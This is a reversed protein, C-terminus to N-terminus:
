PHHVAVRLLANQLPDDGLPQRRGVQRVHFRRVRKEPAKDGGAIGGDAQFLLRRHQAHEGALRQQHHVAPVATNQHVHLLKGGAGDLLRVGAADEPAAVVAEHLVQHLVGSQQAATDSIGAQRQLPHLQIIAGVGIHHQAVHVPLGVGLQQRLYPFFQFIHLHAGDSDGRCNQFGNGLTRYVSRGSTAVAQM